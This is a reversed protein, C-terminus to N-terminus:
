SWSSELILIWFMENWVWYINTLVKSTTLLLSNLRNWALTGKFQNFYCSLMSHILYIISFDNDSFHSLDNNKCKVSLPTETEFLHVLCTLCLLVFLVLCTFCSPLYPVLCTMCSLVCPVLRTLYSLVYPVLCTLSSLVHSVLCTLCSLVYRVLCTSRSLLYPVYNASEVKRKSQLSTLAKSISLSCSPTNKFIFCCFHHWILVYFFQKKFSCEWTQSM